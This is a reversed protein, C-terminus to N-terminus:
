SRDRKYPEIIKSLFLAVVVKTFLYCLPFALLSLWFEQREIWSFPNDMSVGIPDAAKFNTGATILYNLNAYRNGTIAYLVGSEWLCLLVIIIEVSLDYTKLFRKRWGNLVAYPTMGLRSDTDSIRKIKM